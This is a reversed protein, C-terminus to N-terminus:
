SHEKHPACIHSLVNLAHARSSEDLLPGLSPIASLRLLVEEVTLVPVSSASTTTNPPPLPPSTSVSTTGCHAESGGTIISTTVEGPGGGEHQGLQHSLQHELLHLHLQDWPPAAAQVEEIRVGETGEPNLLVLLLTVLVRPMAANSLDVCVVWCSGTFLTRM